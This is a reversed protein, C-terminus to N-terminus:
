LKYRVDGGIRVVQFARQGNMKKKIRENRKNSDSVWWTAGICGDM